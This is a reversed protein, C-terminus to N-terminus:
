SAKCAWFGDRDKGRMHESGYDVVEKCNDCCLIPADLPSVNAKEHRALLERFVGWEELISVIGTSSKCSAARQQLKDLRERCDAATFASLKHRRFYGM